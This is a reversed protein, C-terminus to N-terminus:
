DPKGVVVNKQLLIRLIHQGNAISNTLQRTIHCWLFSHNHAIGVGDEFWVFSLLRSYWDLLIISNLM